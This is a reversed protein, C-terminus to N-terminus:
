LDFLVAEVQRRIEEPTIEHRRKWRTIADHIAAALTPQRETRRANLVNKCFRMAEIAKLKRQCIEDAVLTLVLDDPIRGLSGLTALRPPKTLYDFRSGALLRLARDAAAYSRLSWESKGRMNASAFQSQLDAPWRRKGDTPPLGRRIEALQELAKGHDCGAPIYREDAGHRVRIAYHRSGKPLILWAGM